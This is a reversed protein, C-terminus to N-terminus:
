PIDKGIPTLKKKMRAPPDLPDLPGEWGQASRLRDIDTKLKDVGEQSHNLMGDDWMRAFAPATLYAGVLQRAQDNRSVVVPFRRPPLDPRADVVDVPSPPTMEDSIVRDPEVEILPEPVLTVPKSTIDKMVPPGVCSSLQTTEMDSEWTDDRKVPQRSANAILEGARTWSTNVYRVFGTNKDNIAVKPRPKRNSKVAVKGITATPHKELFELYLRFHQLYEPYREGYVSLDPPSLPEVKSVPAFM